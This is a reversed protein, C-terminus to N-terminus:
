FAALIMSCLLTNDLYIARVKFIGNAAKSAKDLVTSTAKADLFIVSDRMWRKMFPKWSQLSLLAILINRSLQLSAAIELVANEYKTHVDQLAQLRILASTSAHNLRMLYNTELTPM